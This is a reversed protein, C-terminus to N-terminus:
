VFLGEDEAERRREAIRSRGRFFDVGARVGRVFAAITRVPEIVSKRLENGTDEVAELAGTLLRDAHVIQLRLRDTAEELLRDFRRSNVRITRTIEASDHVIDHLDDHSEEVLVRIRNLLPTLRTEVNTSVQGLTVAMRRFLFYFAVLVVAQLLVAIAAIVVFAAVWTQM